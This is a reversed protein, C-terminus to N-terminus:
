EDFTLCLQEQEAEPLCGRVPGYSRRHIPCPGYRRLAELHDPTPYGFHRDFGYLPYERAYDVMIADRCTKALISAAAIAAIKSDGKVICRWPVSLNAPAKNGDVYVEIPRVSLQEVARVMARLSAQLINIRDIEDPSCIAIAWIASDKIRAELAERKDASLKKSDNLGNRDFSDPLITAAAVVPGALPGRGAEDVGAIGPVHELM